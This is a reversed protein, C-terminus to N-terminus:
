GGNGTLGTGGAERASKLMQGLLLAEFDTAAQRLKAPNDKLSNGAVGASQAPLLASIPQIPM